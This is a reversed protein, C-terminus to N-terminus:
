SQEWNNAVSLLQDRAKQEREKAQEWAGEDILSTINRRLLEGIITPNLADLEWSQEGFKSIYGEFRSDTQKAPNPPPNYQRVQDMNLALRRVEPHWLDDNEDAKVFMRLRDLNDRTMDLGSPDHDGLHFIVVHKGEDHLRAFRKGASYQESQSSYGRCAFYPVRYEDCVRQIVGVLAEKEIWVECYTDQTDWRDYRFQNACATLIDAPSDWSALKELNRTRDEIVSWDILGALRANSILTGLKNYETQKNPIWGRAVFQYYLQRLTLTYGQSQYERCIADAQKIIKLSKEEFNREIFTEYAM